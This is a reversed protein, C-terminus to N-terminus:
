GEVNYIIYYELKLLSFPYIISATTSYTQSETCIFKKIGNSDFTFLVGHLLEQVNEEGGRGSSM